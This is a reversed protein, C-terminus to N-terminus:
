PRVALVLGSCRDAGARRLAGAAASLTAGTTCVDDVVVVHGSVPASPEFSPGRLRQVRDAGTQPDGSRRRLTATAHLGTRRGVGRALLEAQDYGRDRRRSPSTPAWTLADVPVPSRAVFVALARAAVTLVDRHNRYKLAAILRPVPEEYALLAWCRDLGPPTAV